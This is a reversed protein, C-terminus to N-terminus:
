RAETAVCYERKQYILVKIGLYSVCVKVYRSYAGSHQKVSIPAPPIHHRGSGVQGDIMNYEIM